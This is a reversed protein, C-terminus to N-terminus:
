KNKLFCLRSEGKSVEFSAQAGELLPVNLPVHGCPFDFCVPFSYDAVLNRITEYISFPMSADEPCDSFQGVVLGNIRNFIGALRLHYVMREIKYPAEGIDEIFLIAGEYDFDYESGHLGSLVALNGGVVRGTTFGPRNLPHPKVHYAPLNGFLTDKILASVDDQPLTALHQAMSAHLSVVGSRTFLAHLLTIDSYGILWKPHNRILEAPLKEILQVAGYGGRACLIAKVDPNLLAQEFDALRAEKTAAYRGYADLAHPAIVPQLGWGTLTQCAAEVVARDIRGAPSVIQIQDGVRLPSPFLTM